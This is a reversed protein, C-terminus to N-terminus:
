PWTYLKGVTKQSKIGTGAGTAQSGSIVAAYAHGSQSRVQSGVGQSWCEIERLISNLLDKNQSQDDITM